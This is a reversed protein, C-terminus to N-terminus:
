SPLHRNRRFGIFNLPPLQQTPASTDRGNQAHDEDGQEPDGIVEM